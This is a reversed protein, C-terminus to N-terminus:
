GNFQIVEKLIEPKLRQCISLDNLEEPESVDFDDILQYLLGQCDSDLAAATLFLRLSSLRPYVTM